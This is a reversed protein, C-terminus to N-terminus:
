KYFRVKPKSKKLSYASLTSIIHVCTFYSGCTFNVHFPRLGFAISLGCTCDFANIPSKHRTHVLDMKNKLCDFITEIISRKRLIIKEQLDVLKNAMRKKIGHIM